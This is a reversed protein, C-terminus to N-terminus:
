KLMRVSLSRMLSGSPLLYGAKLCRPIDGDRHSAVHNRFAVMVEDKDRPQMKGHILAVRLEPFIESALKVYMEEASPLAPSVVEPVACM